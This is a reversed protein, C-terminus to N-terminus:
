NFETSFFFLQVLRGDKDDKGFLNNYMYYQDARFLLLRNYISEVYDTKHWKTIDYKYEDLVKKNNNLMIKPLFISIGADNIYFKNLFLIGCWNNNDINGYQMQLKDLSNMYEYSGNYNNETKDITFNTIQGAFNKIYSEITQRISENALSYTRKGCYDGTRIFDQTLAYKETELPNTLFNDVVLLNIKPKLEKQINNIPIYSLLKDKIEIDTQGIKELVPIYMKDGRAYKCNDPINIKYETYTIKLCDLECFKNTTSYFSIRTGIKSHNILIEYVFKNIRSVNELYNGDYTYDDFFISDYIDIEYIIDQWRGKILEMELDPRIQYIEQQFNEFKKWVIPSCEIVSYKKVNQNLCLKKASYGLGFGIELVSGSPDLTDICAEMYPQEWEMMVQHIGNEDQLIENGSSDKTYELKM